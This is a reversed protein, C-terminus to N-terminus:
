IAAASQARAPFIAPILPERRWGPERAARRSSARIWNTSSVPWTSATSRRAAAVIKARLIHGSYVAYAVTALLGLIALVVMLELLTIGQRKTKM